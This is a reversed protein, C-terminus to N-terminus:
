WDQGAEQMLNDVSLKPFLDKSVGICVRNPPVQMASEEDALCAELLVPASILCGHGKVDQPGRLVCTPRGVSAQKTCEKVYVLCKVAQMM